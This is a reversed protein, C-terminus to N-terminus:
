AHAPPAAGKLSEHSLLTAFFRGVVLFVVAAAAAIAAHMLWFQAAPMKELLTGLIGVTQNGAVLHLYYLGIVFGGLAVPAARAYLALSVPLMNAFAISNLVHFAVCWWISVKTGTAAALAAGAALCLVGLVSVFAGITLKGIEDPERFRKAWVRWFVVMLFLFSVSVVSDLTILWTTPVKSGFFTLDVGTDAWVLYANFIQQNCLVSATLVPLLAVLVALTRWDHPRMRPRASSAKARLPPDPPLHRRGALYIVLAILMGVGAAGFGYHWGVTEGLTGAVLPAAIVGANIGLYFIQFADARRLDGESYLGGVQAAINGKFCGTGLILCLLALLFSADFAMLFHGAAMLLAGAIITRTKGLLQDALLGGFIPTLYVLSTYLGFITSAVQQTSADGPLRYVAGLVSRFAEFGAIQEVHPSLLLTKTMYLVLLSQMGYYSFREWAESFALFGLGKPHGLFARDGDKAAVAANTTTM